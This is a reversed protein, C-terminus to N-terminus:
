NEMGTQLVFKKPKEVIRTLARFATRHDYYREIEVEHKGFNNFVDVAMKYALSDHGVCKEKMYEAVGEFLEIANLLLRWSVTQPRTPMRMHQECIEKLQQTYEKVDNFSVYKNYKKNLWELWTELMRNITGDFDIGIIM